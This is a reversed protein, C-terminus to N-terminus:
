DDEFGGVEYVIDWFSIDTQKSLGKTLVYDKEAMKVCLHEEERGEVCMVNYGSIHHLKGEEKGSMRDLEKKFLRKTKKNVVLVENEMRGHKNYLNTINEIMNLGEKCWDEM